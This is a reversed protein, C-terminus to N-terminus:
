CRGEAAPAQESGPKLKGCTTASRTSAIEARIADAQAADGRAQEEIVRELM